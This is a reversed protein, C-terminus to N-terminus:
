LLEADEINSDEGIESGDSIKSNIIRANRGLICNKGVFTKGLLEVGTEIITNEGIEIDWDIRTNSPNRITVGKLQMKEIIRKQLILERETLEKRNNIGMVEQWDSAAFGYVGLGKKQIIEITDTLYYEKQANSPNIKHLASFLEKKDFVYIGSNIENIKKEEKNADVAEVIKVVKDGKRVV